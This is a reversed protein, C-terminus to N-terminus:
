KDAQHQRRGNRGEGEPLFARGGPARAVARDRLFALECVQEGVLRETVRHELRHAVPAVIRRSGVQLVREPVEGAAHLRRLLADHVDVADLQQPVRVVDVEILVQDLVDAEEFLAVDVVVVKGARLVIGLVHVVHRPVNHPVRERVQRCMKAPAQDDHM